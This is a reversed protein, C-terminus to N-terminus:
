RDVQAQRLESVWVTLLKVHFVDASTLIAIVNSIDRLHGLTAWARAFNDDWVFADRM